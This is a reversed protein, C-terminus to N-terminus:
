TPWMESVTSDDRSRTKRLLSFLSWCRLWCGSSNSWHQHTLNLCHNDGINWYPLWLDVMPYGHNLGLNVMLMPYAYSFWPEVLSRRQLGGTLLQVQGKGRSRVQFQCTQLHVGPGQLTTCSVQHHNCTTVPPQHDLFLLCWYHLLSFTYVFHFFM